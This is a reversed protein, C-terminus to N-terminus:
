NTVSVGTMFGSQGPHAASMKVGRTSQDCIATLIQRLAIGGEERNIICQVLPSLVKHILSPTVKIMQM